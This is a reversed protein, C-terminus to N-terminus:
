ARAHPLRSYSLLAHTFGYVPRVPARRARPARRVSDAFFERDAGTGRPGRGAGGRSGGNSGCSTHIPGSAPTPQVM